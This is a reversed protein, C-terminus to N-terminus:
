NNVPRSHFKLFNDNIAWNTAYESDTYPCEAGDTDAHKVLTRYPVKQDLATMVELIDGYKWNLHNSMDEEIDEAYLVIKNTSKVSPEHLTFGMDKLLEVREAEQKNIDYIAVNLRKREIRLSLINERIEEASPKLNNHQNKENSFAVNSSNMVEYETHYVFFQIKTGYEDYRDFEVYVGDEEVEEVVGTDGNHYEECSDEAAVIKICDGVKVKYM